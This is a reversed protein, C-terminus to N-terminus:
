PKLLLVGFSKLEKELIKPSVNGLLIALHRKFKESHNKVGVHALEHLIVYDMLRVPLRALHINLNINNAASCSGWRTKQRRISVKKYTINHFDALIELRNKIRDKAVAEIPLPFQTNLKEYRNELEQANQQQTLIWQTHTQVFDIARKLSISRPKTVIVGEFAKVQIRLSKARPITKIHVNGIGEITKCAWQNKVKKIPNHRFKQFINDLM